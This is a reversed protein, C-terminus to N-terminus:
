PSMGLMRWQDDSLVKRLSVCFDCDMLTASIKDLHEARGFMTQIKESTFKQNRPTVMKTDMFGFVSVLFFNLSVISELEMKPAM